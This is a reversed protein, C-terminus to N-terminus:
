LGRRLRESRFRRDIRRMVEDVLGNVDPLMPLAAPVPAAIRAAVAAVPAERAVATFPALALSPLGPQVGPRSTASWVLEAARRRSPAPADGVMAERRRYVVTVISRDATRLAPSADLRAAAAPQDPRRLASARQASASRRPALRAPQDLRLPVSAYRVPGSRRWRERADRRGLGSGASARRFTRPTGIQSAIPSGTPSVAAVPRPATRRRLTPTAAAASPAVPLSRSAALASAPKTSLVWLQRTPLVPLKRQAEAGASRRWAAIASATPVPPAKADAERRSPEHLGLVIKQLLSLSLSWSAVHSPQPPGSGRAPKRRRWFLSLPAPGRLRPGTRGRRGIVPRLPAGVRLPPRPKM